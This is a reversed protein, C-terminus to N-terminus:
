FRPKSNARAAAAPPPPQTPQPVPKAPPKPKTPASGAMPASIQPAAVALGEVEDGIGNTAPTLPFINKPAWDVVNLIPKKIRGFARNRHMYSDAQLEVVPYMDPRQRRMDLNYSKCVNAIADLGGQSSATFTYIGYLPDNESREDAIAGREAKMLIYNAKQWPDRPAGDESLEWEDKDLDGLASRAPVVFKNIVLGMAHETPRSEWWRIWGVLLSDMNCALRTGLPVPTSSEGAVYDGKTFKLLKGVIHQSSVTKAYAAFPDSDPDYNTIQNSTQTM